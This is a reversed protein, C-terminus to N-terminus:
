WTPEIGLIYGFVQISYGRWSRFHTILKPNPCVEENQNIHRRKMVGSVQSLVM